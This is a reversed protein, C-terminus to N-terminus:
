YFSLRTKLGTMKKQYIELQNILEKVIQQWTFLILLNFRARHEM